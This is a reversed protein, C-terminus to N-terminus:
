WWQIGVTLELGSWLDRYLEKHGKRGCGFLNTVESDIYWVFGSICIWGNKDKDYNSQWKMIM